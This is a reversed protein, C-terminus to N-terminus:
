FIAASGSERGRIISEWLTISENIIKELPLTSRTIRTGSDQVDALLKRADQIAKQLKETSLREPFKALLEADNGVLLRPELALKIIRM